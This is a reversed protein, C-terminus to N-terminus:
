GQPPARPGSPPGHDPGPRPLQALLQVRRPAEVRQLVVDVAVLRAHVILADPWQSDRPVTPTDVMGHGHEHGHQDAELEPMSFPLHGREDHEQAVHAHAMAHAVATGPATLSVLLAVVLATLRSPVSRFVGPTYRLRGTRPVHAPLAM